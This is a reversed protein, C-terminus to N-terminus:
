AKFFHNERTIRPKPSKQSRLHRPGGTNKLPLRISLGKINDRSSSNDAYLLLSSKRQSCFAFVTHRKNNNDIWSVVVNSPFFHPKTFIILNVVCTVMDIKWFCFRNSIMWFPDQFINQFHFNITIPLIKLTM